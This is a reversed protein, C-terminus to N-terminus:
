PTARGKGPTLILLNADYTIVGLLVAGLVREMSVEYYHSDFGPDRYPDAVHIRGGPARDHLLVFHGTPEGGVDDDRLVDTGSERSSGYLYTSSLGTLIPTGRDLYRSILRSRLDEFRIEGGLDLFELYAKTATVLKKKRKIRAQEELKSRLDAKGSFWTPDFMHLNYTYLTAKYGRRLAHCALHVALTGGTDLPTVESVVQDLPLDDGYFSYVAHLCAPGCTSDDPQPQIRLKRRLDGM